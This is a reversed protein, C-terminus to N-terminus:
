CVTSMGNFLPLDCLLGAQGDLKLTKKEKTLTISYTPAWTLGKTLFSLTAMPDQNKGTRQYRVLLSGPIGYGEHVRIREVRVLKSCDIVKDVKMKGVSAEICAIGPIQDGLPKVWKVKGETTYTNSRLGQCEEMSVM